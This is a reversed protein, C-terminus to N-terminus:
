MKFCIKKKFQKYYFVSPTYVLFICCQYNRQFIIILQFIANNNQNAADVSSKYNLDRFSFFYEHSTRELPQHASGCSRSSGFTIPERRVCESINTMDPDWSNLREALLQSTTLRSWGILFNSVFFIFKNGQFYM